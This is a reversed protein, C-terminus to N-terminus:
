IQYDIQKQIYPNTYIQTQNFYTQQNFGSQEYINSQIPISGYIQQRNPYESPSSTDNTTLYYIGISVKFISIASLWISISIIAFFIWFYFFLRFSQACIVNQVRAISRQVFKCNVESLAGTNKDIISKLYNSATINYQTIADLKVNLEDQNQKHKNLISKEQALAPKWSSSQNKYFQNITSIEPCDSIQQNLLTQDSSFIASQLCVPQNNPNSFPQESLPFYQIASADCYSMKDPVSSKKYNNCAKIQQRMMYKISDQKPIQESEDVREFTIFSTIFDLNIKLSANGIALQKKLEDKQQDFLNLSTDLDIALKISDYVNYYNLIDGDKFLCETMIEKIQKDKIVYNLNEFKTQNTQIVDIYDCVEAIMVSTVGLCASLIFGIIVFLFNFSCACILLCRLCKLGKGFCLLISSFVIVLSCFGFAGFISYFVLSALDSLDYLTKTNDLFDNAMNFLNLQTDEIQKKANELNNSIKDKDDSLQQGDKQINAIENIINEYIQQFIQSQPLVKIQQVDLVIEDASIKKNTSIYGLINNTGYYTTLPITELNQNVESLKEYEKQLQQVNILDLQNQTDSVFGCLGNKIITISNIVSDLGKWRQIEEDHNFTAGDNIDNLIMLGACRISKISNGVQDSMILGAICFTIIIVGFIISIALPIRIDKIEEAKTCKCFGCLCSSLNKNQQDRWCRILTIHTFFSIVLLIAWPLLMIIVAKSADQQKESSFKGDNEALNDLGIRYNTSLLQDRLRKAESIEKLSPQYDVYLCSDVTVQSLNELYTESGDLYKQLVLLCGLCLLFVCTISTKTKM